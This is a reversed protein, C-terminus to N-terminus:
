ARRPVRSPRYAGGGGRRKTRRTKVDLRFEQDGSQARQNEKGIDMPGQAQWGAFSVESVREFNAFPAFVRRDNAVGAAANKHHVRGKLAARCDRASPAEPILSILKEMRPLRVVIFDGQYRGSM